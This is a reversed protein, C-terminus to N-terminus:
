LDPRAPKLRCSIPIHIHSNFVPITVTRVLDLSKIILTCRWPQDLGGYMLIFIGNRHGLDEKLRSFSAVSMGDWGTIYGEAIKERM